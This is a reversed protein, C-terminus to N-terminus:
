CRVNRSKKRIDDDDEDELEDPCFDAAGSYECHTIDQYELVARGREVLRKELAEADSHFNLPYVELENIKRTGHFLPQAITRKVLGFVSGNFQVENCEVLLKDKVTQADVLELICDEGSIRSYVLIGKPFLTWLHKCTILKDSHLQAVTPSMEHFLEDM